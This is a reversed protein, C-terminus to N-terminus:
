KQLDAISKKMDSEALKCTQDQCIYILTEGAKHRDTLLPLKSENKSSAASIINPLYEASLQVMMEAWKDGVIAVEYFPYSHQLLVSAWLSYSAPYSSLQSFMSEIM